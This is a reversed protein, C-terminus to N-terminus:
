LEEKFSYAEEYTYFWGEPYMDDLFREFNELYYIGEFNNDKIEDDEIYFVKM